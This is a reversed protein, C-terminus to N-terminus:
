GLLIRGEMEFASYSTSLFVWNDIVAFSISYSLPFRSTSAGGGGCVV